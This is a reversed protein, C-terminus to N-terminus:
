FHFGVSPEMDTNLECYKWRKDDGVLSNPWVAAVQETGKDGEETDGQGASIDELMLVTEKREGVQKEKNQYSRPCVRGMRRHECVPM